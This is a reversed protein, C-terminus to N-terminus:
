AREPTAGVLTAMSKIHKRRNCRGHSVQVNAAVHLGGSILPIVHDLEYEDWPVLDNCIGCIANDRKYIEERDVSGDGSRAMQARRRRESEAHPGANRQQDYAAFREPHRERDRRVRDANWAPDTARRERQWETKYARECDRCYAFRRVGGFILRFSEDAREEQCRACTRM